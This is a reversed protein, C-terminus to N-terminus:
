RSLPHGDDILSLTHEIVAQLPRWDAIGQGAVGYATGHDVSTRLIPLGMTWNATEGFSATKVAILGQDHYLALVWDFEGLRARQFVTDPSEPGQVDLGEARARKVVPALIEADESGLLGDEGAHPNLGALALRGGGHRDLVRLAKLVSEADISSLAERLPVHTSLLAVRLDPGLFSMLYDVGYVHSGLREALYETHGRFDAQAHRAIQSKSVPATVLAAVTGERALTLGVDIAALAARADGPQPKGFLIERDTALPDVVAVVGPALQDLHQASPAAGDLAAMPELELQSLDRGLAVAAAELARMEGVVVPQWVTAINGARWHELVQLVIEPGVGAPDGLTLALQHPANRGAM